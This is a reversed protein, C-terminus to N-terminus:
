RNLAKNRMMAILLALATLMVASWAALEEKDGTNPSSARYGEGSDAAYRCLDASLIVGGGKPVTVYWFGDDGRYAELEKGEDCYVHELEYGEPIEIRVRVKDGELATYGHKGKTLGPLSIIGKDRDRIRIIYKITKEFKRNINRNQDLAVFEKGNGDKRVVIKWATVSVTGDCDPTCANTVIGAEKGEVTGTVAVNISSGVSVKLDMGSEEKARIDGDVTIDIKSGNDAAADIGDDENSGVDGNVEATVTGGNDAKADVGDEDAKVDGNIVASASGEDASIVLGHGEDSSVDGNVVASADSGEGEASVTVADTKGANVDSDVTVSEEQGAGASVSVGQDAGFATMRGACFLLAFAFAIAAVTRTRYRM